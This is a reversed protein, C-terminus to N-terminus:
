GRLGLVLFRRGEKKLSSPRGERQTGKAVFLLAAGIVAPAAQLHANAAMASSLLPLLFAVFLVFRLYPVEEGTRMQGALFALCPALCILDYDMCYPTILLASAAIAAGLAVSPPRTRAFRVLVTLVGLAAVSQVISAVALGVGLLRAAMFVSQIRVEQVMGGTIATAAAHASHLFAGWPAAGLILVSAVCLVAACSIVGGLHRWRGAAALAFPVGIALHPKCILFGLCAGGALPRRDAFVMFWALCAALILGNQGALFTIWLGPYALFPLWGAESPLLRRAALALPVLGAATFLAFAAWYPLGALLWCVMLFPPPYFFPLYGGQQRPQLAQEAAALAGPAYALDPSGHRALMGAAYFCPFDGGLGGWAAGSVQALLMVGGWAAMMLTLLLCWARLRELTLWSADRILWGFM